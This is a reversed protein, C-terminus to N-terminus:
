GMAKGESKAKSMPVRCRVKSNFYRPLMEKSAITLGLYVITTPTIPIYSIGALLAGRDGM